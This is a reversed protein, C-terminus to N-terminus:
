EEEAPVPTSQLTRQTQLPMAILASRLMGVLQTQTDDMKEIMDECADISTIPVKEYAQAYHKSTEERIDDNLKLIDLIHGSDTYDQVIIMNDIHGQAEDRVADIESRWQSFRADIKETIEPNEKKCSGVATLVTDEVVGVTSLLNYNNLIMAFHGKEDPPLNEMIDNTKKELDRVLDLRNDAYAETMLSILSISCILCTLIIHM